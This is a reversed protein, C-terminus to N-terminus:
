RIVSVIRWGKIVKQNLTMRKLGFFEISYKSINGLNLDGVVTSESSTKIHKKSEESSIITLEGTPTCVLYDGAVFTKEKNPTYLVGPKNLVCARVSISNSDKLESIDRGSADVVIIPLEKLNCNVGRLITSIIGTDRNTYKQVDANVIRGNIAYEITKSKSVRYENNSIDELM